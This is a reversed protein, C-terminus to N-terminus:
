PTRFVAVLAAQLPKLKEMTSSSDHEAERFEDDLGQRVEFATDHIKLMGCAVLIELLDEDDGQELLADPAHRLAKPIGQVIVLGLEAAFREIVARLTGIERDHAWIKIGYMDRTLRVIPRKAADRYTLLAATLTVFPVCSVLLRRLDRGRREAVDVTSENIPVCGFWTAKGDSSEYSARQWTTASLKHGHDRVFTVVQRPFGIRVEKSSVFQRAAMATLFTRGPFDLVLNRYETAPAGTRWDIRSSQYAADLMHAVGSARREVTSQALDSMADIAKEAAVRTSLREVGDVDASERKLANITQVLKQRFMAQSFLRGRAPVSHAFASGTETFGHVGTRTNLFGLWRGFELYYHVTREDVGLKEALAASDFVGHVLQDILKIFLPLSNAQPVDTITATLDLQFTEDEM